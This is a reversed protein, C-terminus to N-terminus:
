EKIIFIEEGDEHMGYQERAIKELSKGDTDLANLEKELSDCLSRYHDIQANLRGIEVRNKMRVMMNNKDLFCVLIVFFLVTLLYKHKGMYHWLKALFEM